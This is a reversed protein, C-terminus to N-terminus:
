DKAFYSRVCGISQIADDIARHSIRPPLGARKAAEELSPPYEDGRRMFLVTPDIVRHRFLDDFGLRKLFQRDFGNFNRGCAILKARKALGMENLWKQFFPFIRSPPILRGPDTQKLQYIEKLLDRNMNLAFPNICLEDHDVYCHWTDLPSDDYIEGRAVGIELVQNREPDLGTTEIDISYVIM